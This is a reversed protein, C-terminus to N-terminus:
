VEPRSQIEKIVQQNLSNDPRALDPSTAYEILSGVKSQNQM